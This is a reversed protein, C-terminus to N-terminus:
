TQRRKSLLRSRKDAYWGAVFADAIRQRIFEVAVSSQPGPTLIEKIMRDAYDHAAEYAKAADRPINHGAMPNSM